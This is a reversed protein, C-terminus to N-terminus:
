DWYFYFGLHQKRTLKRSTSFSMNQSSSPVLSNLLFRTHGAHLYVSLWTRELKANLNTESINVEQEYDLTKKEGSPWVLRDALNSTMRTSRCVESCNLDTLENENLDLNRVTVVVGHPYEWILFFSTPKPPGSELVEVMNLVLLQAKSIGGRNVFQIVQGSIWHGMSTWHPM